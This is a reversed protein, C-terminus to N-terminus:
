KPLEKSGVVTLNIGIQVKTPVGDIMIVMKENLNWGLSGTSFEKALAVFEKDGIKLILPKATLLFQNRTVPCVTKNAAMKKRGHQSPFATGRYRCSFFKEWGCYNYVFFLFFDLRADATTL